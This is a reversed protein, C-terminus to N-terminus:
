ETTTTINNYFNYFVEASVNGNFISLVENHSEAVFPITFTYNVM